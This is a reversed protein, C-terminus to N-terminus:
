FNFYLFESVKNLSLFGGIFIIGSFLVSKYNYKLSQLKQMSNQFALILVFSLVIFAMAKGRDLINSFRGFEVGYEQLFLLPSSLANPLVVYDLSFMAGLVKLADDWEKARFFVWTVNIFNFTIFWALLKPLKIGFGQWLRHIVLAM